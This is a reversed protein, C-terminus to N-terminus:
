RGNQVEPRSDLSGDRGKFGGALAKMAAFLGGPYFRLTAIILLAVILHRSPGIDILAQDLGVMVFAAIASGWTTAAGGVLLISLVLTLQGFGFITPSAVRLYTAYFAGALGAFCASAVLVLLRTRALSIGRAVAYDPNDRLAIVARGFPSGVIRHIALLSAAFLVLALYYYGLKGDYAFRHGAVELSPIMVMGVSGGTIEAQSIVIQVVLQSFAFTVLIVYIGSLRLVPIAVLTAAVAAGLAGALFALPVPLGLTKSLVASVYAGVGFFAVHAFNMVGGYGLSLDWSAAVVAYLMAIIMLHRIYSSEVFLPALLLFLGAAAAALLGQKTFGRPM